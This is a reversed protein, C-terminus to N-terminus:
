LRRQPLEQIERMIETVREVSCYGIVDETVPTDYCIDYDVGNFAFVACEYLGDKYGYSGSHKIVSIAYGNPFTERSCVGPLHKAPMEKFELDTFTKM